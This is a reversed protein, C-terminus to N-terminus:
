SEETPEAPVEDKIPAVTDILTAEGFGAEAVAEIAFDSEFEDDKIAVTVVKTAANAKADLVGPKEKIAQVISAACAECHMGPAELELVPAGTVNFEVPTVEIATGTEEEASSLVMEEVTPTGCGTAAALMLMWVFRSM